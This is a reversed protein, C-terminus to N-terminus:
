YMSWRFILLIIYILTLQNYYQFKRNRNLCPNIECCGPRVVTQECYQGSYGKFLKILILKFYNTTFCIQNLLLLYVKRANATVNTLDKLNVSDGM